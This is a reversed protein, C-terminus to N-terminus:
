YTWGEGNIEHARHVTIFANKDVAGVLAIFEAYRNMPFTVMLLKKDEGSFGGKVDIVTTTRDMKDIVYRNIQEYKDSVVQAILARSEGIFVKDIVIACIFASIVGLLSIVLNSIVLMGFFIIVADIIFMLVSNKLSKYRKCLSLSIIDVGGTSGGGLFTLACGAGVAVGGFVSALLVAIERYEAYTKSMLNLFDGFLSSDMLAVALSLAIPYVIASVLTKM